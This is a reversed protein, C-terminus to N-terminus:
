TAPTECSPKGTDANLTKLLQISPRNHHHTHLFVLLRFLNIEHGLLRSRPWAPAIELQQEPASPNVCIKRQKAQHEAAPSSKGATGSLKRRGKLQLERSFIQCTLSLKPLFRSLPATYPALKYSPIDDHAPRHRPLSTM